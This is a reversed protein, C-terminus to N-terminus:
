FAICRPYSTIPPCIFCRTAPTPFWPTQGGIAAAQPQAVAGCDLSTPCFFVAASDFAAAGVRQQQQGGGQPQCAISQNCAISQCGIASPCNFGTAVPCLQPNQTPCGIRTPCADIASPNCEVFNHTCLRTPCADVASPNCQVFNHTPCAAAVITPYCQVIQHTCLRTPCADVISPNCQLVQQTLLAPQALGANRAAAQDFPPCIFCHTAPTPQIPLAQAGQAAAGFQQQEGGGGPQCAISQCAISQCGIASPCNFGSHPPCQPGGITIPGPCQAGIQTCVTAATNPCGPGGHTCFM